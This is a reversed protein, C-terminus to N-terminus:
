TTPAATHLLGRVREHVVEGNQTIITDKIIEDEMDLTLAGDKVM